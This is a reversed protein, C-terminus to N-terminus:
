KSNIEVALECRTLPTMNGDASYCDYVLTANKYVGSNLVQRLMVPESTEGPYLPETTFLVTGDGLYLSIVFICPNNDPNSMCLSQEVTGSLLEIGDTAPITASAKNRAVFGDSGGGEITPFTFNYQQDANNHRMPNVLVAAALAFFAIILVILIARAAIRSKKKTIISCGKMCIPVKEKMIISGM